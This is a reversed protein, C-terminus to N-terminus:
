ILNKIRFLLQKDNLGWFNWFKKEMRRYFPLWSAKYHHISYTNQTPSGKKTEYCIPSFYEIPYIVIDHPQNLYLYESIILTNPRMKLSGDDNVFHCREYYRLLDHIFDSKCVSGIVSTGIRKETELGLFCKNTLLNDMNQLVEVDTDFYIGGENYLAYLRVYDSVFAYKHNDYAERVFDCINIDFNDENWEKIKYDPLYKKWTIIYKKVTDPLPKHGFWCYHIIKPIM